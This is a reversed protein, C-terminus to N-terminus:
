LSESSWIQLGLRCQPPIKYVMFSPSNVRVYFAGSLSRREKLVMAGYESVSRVIMQIIQEADGSLNLSDVKGTRYKEPVDELNPADYKVFAYGDAGQIQSYSLGRLTSDRMLTASVSGDTRIEVLFEGGTFLQLLRLANAEAFFLSKNKASVSQDKCKAVGVIAGSLCNTSGQVCGALVLCLM